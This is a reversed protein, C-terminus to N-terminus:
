IQVTKSGPQGCLELMYLLKKNESLYFNLLSSHIYLIEQKKSNKFGSGISSSLAIFCISTLICSKLLKLALDEHLSMLTLDLLLIPQQSGIYWSITHM